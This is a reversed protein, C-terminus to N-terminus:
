IHAFWYPTILNTDVNLIASQTTGYRVAIFFQWNGSDADMFEIGAAATWVRFTLTSGAPVDADFRATFLKKPTAISSAFLYLMGNKFVLECAPTCTTVPPSEVHQRILAGATTEFVYL